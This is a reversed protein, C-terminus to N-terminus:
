LVRIVLLTQDDEQVAGRSFNKVEQLIEKVLYRAPQSKQEALIKELREMGFLEDYDNRAEVIGDTFLVLMDDKQLEVVDTAVEAFTDVGLAMGNTTLNVVKGNRMRLLAPFHGASSYELKQTKVDLSGMWATVFMGSEQVDQCFLNNSFRLIDALSFSLNIYSRLISRIGLSYLCASIGKGSTDAISLFLKEDKLFLDYFDGGVEKAPIYGTAIDLSSVEPLSAPFMSKQIQHGILLEEEFREKLRRQDQAIRQHMMVADMMTNLHQGVLNIEFGFSDKRFRAEMDGESIRDIVRCLNKLPKSLRLTLIGVLSGGVAIVLFLFSLIRSFFLEQQQEAVKKESVDLLLSFDSKAISLTVGLNRKKNVILYSNDIDEIPIFGFTGKAKREKSSKQFVYKKGAMEPDSSAFISGNKQIFSLDIPYPTDELAALRRLLSSAPTAVVLAGVPSEENPDKLTIAVYFLKEQLHPSDGLFIFSPKNLENNLFSFDEGVMEELSSALCLLKGDTMQLYFLKSAQFLEVWVKFFSNLGADNEPSLSEEVIRLFTEQSEVMQDILLVRSEGILKLSLFLEQRYDKYEQRYMLLSHILLPLALLLVSIFLVRAALTGTLHSRSVSKKLPDFVPSGPISAM